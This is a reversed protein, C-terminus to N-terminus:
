QLACKAGSRIGDAWDLLKVHAAPLEADRAAEIWCSTQHTRDLVDERKVLLEGILPGALSPYAQRWHGVTMIDALAERWQLNPQKSGAILWDTLTQAARDPGPALSRTGVRLARQPTTDRLMDLCHGLEHVMIGQLWASDALSGTLKFGAVARSPRLSLKCYGPGLEIQAPSPAQVSGISTSAWSDQVDGLLLVVGYDRAAVEKIPQFGTPSKLVAIRETRFEDISWRKLVGGIPAPLWICTLSAFASLFVHVMRRRWTGADPDIWNSFWGRRHIWYAALAFAIAHLALLFSLTREPALSSVAAIAIILLFGLPLVLDSPEPGMEGCRALCRLAEDARDAPLDGSAVSARVYSAALLRWGQQRRQAAGYLNASWRSAEPRELQASSWFANLAREHEVKKVLQMAEDLLPQALARKQSDAEDIAIATLKCRRASNLTTRTHGLLM